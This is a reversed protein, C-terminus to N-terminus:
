LSDHQSLGALCYEDAVLFNGELRFSSVRILQYRVTSGHSLIATVLYELEFLEDLTLSRVFEPQIEHIRSHPLGELPM